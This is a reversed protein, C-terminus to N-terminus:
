VGKLDRHLKQAWETDTDSNHCKVTDNLEAGQPLAKEHLEIHLICNIGSKEKM